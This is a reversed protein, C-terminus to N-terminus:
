TRSRILVLEPRVHRASVQESKTDILDIDDTAVIKQANLTYPNESDATIVNAYVIGGYKHLKIKDAEM